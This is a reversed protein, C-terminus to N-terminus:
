ASRWNSWGYCSHCSNDKETLQRNREPFKCIKESGLLCTECTQNRNARDEMDTIAQNCLDYFPIFAPISQEIGM